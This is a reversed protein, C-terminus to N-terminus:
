YLCYDVALRSVKVRGAKEAAAQSERWAKWDKAVALSTLSVGEFLGDVDGDVAWGIDSRAVWGSCRKLLEM